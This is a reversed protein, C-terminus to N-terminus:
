RTFFDTNRFSSNDKLSDTHMKYELITNLPLNLVKKLIEKIRSTLKMNNASRNWVSIIDEQFRVSVVAGCIDDGVYFQEGLLALLLNEWCRSALGKRLRVIWKGGHKNAEDEWMPKIGDKFMHFDSHTHLDSPRALHNYFGWFQEVSAFRSLLKLNQDFNQNHKGPARQSFWLCYTHELPHHSSPVVVPPMNGVKDIDCPGEMVEKETLAQPSKKVVLQKPKTSLVKGGTVNSGAAEVETAM